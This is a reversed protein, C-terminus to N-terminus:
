LPINENIELKIKRVAEAPIQVDQELNIHDLFLSFKVTTGTKSGIM